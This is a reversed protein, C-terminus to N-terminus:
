LVRRIWVVGSCTGSTRLRVRLGTRGRDGAAQSRSLAFVSTGAKLSSAQPAEVGELLATGSQVEVTGDGGTKVIEVEYQGVDRVQKTLDFDMTRWTSGVERSTWTAVEQWQGVRATESSPPYIAFEWVTPLDTAELIDWRLDTTKVPKDFRVEFKEGVTTGSYITQWEGGVRAKFEFKRIRDWGEHIAIRGIEREEGFGFEVWVPKGRVADDAGWRTSDDGDLMMTAPYGGSGHESSAKVTAVPIQSEWPMNVFFAAFRKVIPTGVSQTVTLRLKTAEVPAFRDIKKYGISSGMAYVTQWKGAVEAELIYKRVRQGGRIDEMTIAHDVWTPKGFDLVVTKGVGRTEAIARGFRRQIERGFDEYAKLHSEPVLGSTDPTINLMLVSGRGVSDYYMAMLKPLSKIM